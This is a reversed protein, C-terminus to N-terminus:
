LIFNIILFLGIIICIIAITKIHKFYADSPTLNKNVGRHFLHDIKWMMRPKLLYLIGIPFLLIGFIFSKLTANFM